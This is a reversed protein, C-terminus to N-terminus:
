SVGPSLRRYGAIRGRTLNDDGAAAQFQFHVGLRAQIGVRQAIGPGAPYIGIRIVDPGASFEGGQDARRLNDPPFVAILYDDEAAPQAFHHNGLFEGQGGLLRIDKPLLNGDAVGALGQQIGGLEGAPESFLVGWGSVFRGLFGFAAEAGDGEALIGDGPTETIITHRIQERQIDFLNGKLVAPAKGM